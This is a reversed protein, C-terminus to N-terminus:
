MFQLIPHDLDPFLFVITALVRTTTSSKGVSRRVHPVGHATTTDTFGRWVSGPGVREGDGAGDAPTLFTYLSKETRETMVESRNM